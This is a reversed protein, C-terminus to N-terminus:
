YLHSSSVEKDRANVNLIHKRVICAAIHTKKERILRFLLGHVDKVVSLSSAGMSGAHTRGPHECVLDTVPSAHSISSHHGGFQQLANNLKVLPAPAASVSLKRKKQSVKSESGEIPLSQDGASAHDIHTLSENRDLKIASAHTSGPPVSELENLKSGVTASYRILTSLPRPEKVVPHASKTRSPEALNSNNLANSHEANNIPKLHIDNTPGDSNHIMASTIRGNSHEPSRNSADTSTCSERTPIIATKRNACARSDGPSKIIPTNSNSSVSPDSCLLSTKESQPKAQESINLIAVAPVTSSTVESPAILKQSSSSSRLDQTSSLGTETRERIPELHSGAFSGFSAM